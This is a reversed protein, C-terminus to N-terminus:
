EDNEINYSHEAKSTFVPEITVHFYHFVSYGGTCWHMCYVYLPHFAAHASNRIYDNILTAQYKNCGLCCLIICM